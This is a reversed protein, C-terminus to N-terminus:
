TRLAVYGLDYGRTARAAVAASSATESPARDSRPVAHLEGHSTSVARRLRAAGDGDLGRLAEVTTLVAQAKGSAVAAAAPEPDAVAATVTWNLIRAYSYAAERDEGVLALIVVESGASLKSFTEGAESSHQPTGATRGFVANKPSRQAM